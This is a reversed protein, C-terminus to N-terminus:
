LYGGLMPPMQESTEKADGSAGFATRGGFREALTEFHDALSGIQFCSLAVYDPSLGPAPLEIAAVVQM